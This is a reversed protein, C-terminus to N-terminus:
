LFLQASHLAGSLKGSMVCHATATPARRLLNQQEPFNKPVQGVCAPGPWLLRAHLISQIHDVNGVKTM